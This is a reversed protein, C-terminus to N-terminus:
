NPGGGEPVGLKEAVVEEADEEVAVVDEEVVLAGVAPWHGDACHPCEVNLCQYGPASSNPCLGPRPGMNNDDRVTFCM